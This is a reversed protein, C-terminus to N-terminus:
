TEQKLRKGYRLGRETPYAALPGCWALDRDVLAQVSRTLYGRAGWADRKPYYVLMGFRQLDRMAERSMTKPSSPRDAM